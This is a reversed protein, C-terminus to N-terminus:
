LIIDKLQRKPVVHVGNERYYKTNGDVADVIRHTEDSKGLGIAFLPEVGQPLNLLEAAATKNMSGLMCGSIGMEAARLYIALSCIGVDKDFAGVKGFKETDQCIVIFAAPSHGEPPLKLEPLAGGWKTLPLFAKVENAEYILRYCFPQLNVSSPVFRTSDVMDLLEERTVRRGEDFSRCTRTKSLLEKLMDVM